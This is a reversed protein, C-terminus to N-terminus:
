HTKYSYSLYFLGSAPLPCLLVIQFIWIGQLHSSRLKVVAQRHPIQCANPTLLFLIRFHCSLLCLFAFGLLGMWILGRSGIGKMSNWKESHKRSSRCMKLHEHKRKPTAMAKPMKFEHEFDQYKEELINIWYTEPLWTQPYTVNFLIYLIGRLTLVTPPAPDCLRVLLKM